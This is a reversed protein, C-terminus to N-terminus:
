GAPVVDTGKTPQWGGGLAKYLAVLDTASATTSDALSLETQELTREADLVDLFMTLGSQYRQRALTLNVRNRLATAELDRHRECETNYAVLANEVDHLAALVAKAYDVAAEKERVESLHVTAKLKGGEFIPVDLTPGVSFFRSAWRTLDLPREAQTGFSADLTVRPFLNATAVGIQATAAHLRAESARIDPRRRALDAPLGIAIDKPAAPVPKATILEARLAGPERALLQSLQNIDVAIQRELLPIQSNTSSVQAAATSPDIETTLGARRRLRALEYTARQTALNDKTVALKLQAGRLDIYTRAVEGELSVLADHSDEISAETGAKAAEVSRRVAGFLDPEWSADFGTQYQDYPNPFSPLTLPTGHGINGISNFLSGEATTDSFEQRQYSANADLTPWRDAEAIKRETRAETIRLAAERIDLNSSAARGILSSLVPDHFNAWWAAEDAPKATVRGTTSPVAMESWTPPTDAHPVVFDPGMTCGAFWPAVACASVLGRLIASTTM